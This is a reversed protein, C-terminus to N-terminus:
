IKNILGCQMNNNPWNDRDTKFRRLYQNFVSLICYYRVKTVSTTRILEIRQCEVWDRADEKIVPIFDQQDKIWTEVCRDQLKTASDM